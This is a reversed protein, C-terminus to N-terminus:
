IGVCGAACLVEDKMEGFISETGAPAVQEVTGDNTAKDERQQLMEQHIKEM